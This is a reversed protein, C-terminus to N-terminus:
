LLGIIFLVVAIVMLVYIITNIITPLDFKTVLFRLVALVILTIILSVLTM